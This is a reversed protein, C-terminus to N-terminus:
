IKLTNGTDPLNKNQKQKRRIRYLVIFLFIVLSIVTIPILFFIYTYFAWGTGAVKNSELLYIIYSYAFLFPIAKIFVKLYEFFNEPKKSLCFVLLLILIPFLLTYTCFM